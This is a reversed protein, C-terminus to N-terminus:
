GRNMWRIAEVIDVWRWTGDRHRARCEATEINEAKEFLYVWKTSLMSLDDPHVFVGWNQGVMEDPQYGLIRGVADPIYLFTGEPSLLSIADTSHQVMKRFREENIKIVEEALRSETLDRSIGQIGVIEGEEYVANINVAITRGDSGRYSVEYPAVTEGKLAKKFNKKMIKHDEPVVLDLFHLTYVTELAIGSRDVIGRNVFTFYGDRNFSFVGDSIHDVVDRYEEGTERLVQSVLTM